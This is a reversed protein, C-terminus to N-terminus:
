QSELESDPLDFLYRDLSPKDVLSPTLGTISHGSEDNLRLMDLPILVDRLVSNDEQSRLRLRLMPQGGDHPIPGDLTTGFLRESPLNENAAELSGEHDLVNLKPNVYHLRVRHSGQGVPVAPTRWSSLGQPLLTGSENPTGAVPQMLNGAQTPTAQNTEVSRDRYYSPVFVGVIILISAAVALAERVSLVSRLWSPKGDAHQDFAYVQPEEAARAQQVRGMISQTLNAPAPATKWTDLPELTETLRQHRAQLNRDEALKQELERRADDDLRGLQYDLLLADVRVPSQEQSMAKPKGRAAQYRRSAVKALDTPRLWRVRPEEIPM